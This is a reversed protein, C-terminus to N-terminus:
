SDHDMACIIMSIPSFGAVLPLEGFHQFGIKEFVTVSSANSRDQFGFIFSVSTCDRCYNIVFQIFRQGVGKGRWENGMYASILGYSNRIKKYPTTHFPQVTCWGIIERDRDMCIWFKFNDSQQLILKLIQEEVEKIDAADDAPEGFALAAGELWIVSIRAVDAPIAERVTHGDGLATNSPVALHTSHASIESNQFPM